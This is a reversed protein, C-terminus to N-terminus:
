KIHKWIKRNKINSITNPKVGFMKAIEKQTLNGEDLKRIRIVDKETLKVRPHNEGKKKESMLKLTKESHKKNYFSNNEGKMKESQKKKSEESVIKNKNHLITHEGKTMM